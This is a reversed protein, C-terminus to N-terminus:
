IKVLLNIDINLEIVRKRMFAISKVRIILM